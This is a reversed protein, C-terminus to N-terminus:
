AIAKRVEPNRHARCAGARRRASAIPTATPCPRLPRGRPLGGRGRGTAGASRAHPGAAAARPAAGGVPRSPALALVRRIEPVSRDTEFLVDLQEAVGLRGRVEALQPVGSAPATDALRQWAALSRAADHFYEVQAEGIRQLFHPNGPYRAVLRELADLGRGPQQEYWFYIWHLQYLAEGAVLQGRAETAQMDRLGAVKDGGPLLM